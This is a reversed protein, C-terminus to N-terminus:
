VHMPGLPPSTVRAFRDHSVPAPAGTDSGARSPGPLIADILSIEIVSVLSIAIHIIRVLVLPHHFLQEQRSRGRGLDGTSIGVLSGIAVRAIHGAGWYRRRRGDMRITVEGGRIREVECLQLLLLLLLSLVRECGSGRNKTLKSLRGLLRREGLGGLIVVVRVLLKAGIVDVLVTTSM